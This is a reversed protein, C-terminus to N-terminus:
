RRLQAPTDVMEDVVRVRLANRELQVITYGVRGRTSEDVEVCRRDADGFQFTDAELWAVRPRPQCKRDLGASPECTQGHSAGQEM